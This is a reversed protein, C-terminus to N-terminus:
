FLLSISFISCLFLIVGTSILIICERKKNLKFSNIRMLLQQLGLLIPIIPLMIKKDPKTISFIATLIIAIAIIINFIKFKINYYM